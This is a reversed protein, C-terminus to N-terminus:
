HNVFSQDIMFLKMLISQNLNIQGSIQKLESEKISQILKSLEVYDATNKIEKSIKDSLKSIRESITENNKKM